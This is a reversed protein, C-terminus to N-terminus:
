LNDRPRAIAQSQKAQAPEHHSSRKGDRKMTMDIVQRTGIDSRRRPANRNINRRPANGQNQIVCLCYPCVSWEPMLAKGCGPCLNKLQLHCNPCIIYDSEVPYGCASCEGYKLLERQKVAIELEQEDRDIQMLPPRMLCYAIIGFIPIVAILAWKRYNIDRLYADKAVWIISLVYLALFMLVVLIVAITLQPSMLQSLLEAM